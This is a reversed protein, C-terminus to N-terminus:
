FISVLQTRDKLYAETFEPEITVTSLNVQMNTHNVKFEKELDKLLKIRDVKVGSKSESYTFKNQKSADFTVRSNVPQRDVQNIIDEMKANIDKFLFPFAVDINMGRAIISDFETSQTKNIIQQQYKYADAVVKNVNEEVEFDTGTFQWVKDGYTVSLNM